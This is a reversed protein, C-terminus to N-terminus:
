MWENHNINVNIIMSDHRYYNFRRNRILPSIINSKPSAYSFDHSVKGSVEHGEIFKMSTMKTTGDDEDVEAAERLHILMYNGLVCLLSPSGLANLIYASLSSLHATYAIINAINVFM